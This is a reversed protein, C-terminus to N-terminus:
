FSMSLFKGSIAGLITFGFDFYADRRIARDGYRWDEYEKALGLFAPVGFTLYNNNFWQDIVVASVLGTQYHLLYDYRIGHYNERASASVFFSLILITFIIRKM